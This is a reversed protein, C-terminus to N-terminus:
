SSSRPARSRPRGTGEAHGPARATAAVLESVAIRDAGATTGELLPRLSRGPVRGADRRRGRRAADPGRRAALGDGRRHTPATRPSRPARRAACPDVRRVAVRRTRFRRPRRARHRPELHRRGARRAARWADRTGRRPSAPRRGADDGRRRLRGRDGAADDADPPVTRAFSMRWGALIPDLLGRRREAHPAAARRGIAHVACGSRRVARRPVPPPGVHRRGVRAHADDREGGDRDGRAATRRDLVHEFGRTAGDTRGVGAGLITATAYGASRLLQAM